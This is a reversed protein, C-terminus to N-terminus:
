LRSGGERRLQAAITAIEEDARQRPEVGAPTFGVLLGFDSPRISPAAIVVVDEDEGEGRIELRLDDRHVDFLWSRSRAIMFGPIMALEAEDAPSHFQEPIKLTGVLEGHQFIMATRTTM